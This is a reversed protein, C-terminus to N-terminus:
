SPRGLRGLVIAVHLTFADRPDRPDRGTVTHVRSLRYRLTNVHVPLSRATAELSGGAALLTEVTALLGSGAGALADYCEEVLQARALPDGALAREPLLAEAAVIGPHRPAARLVGLGAAAARASAAAVGLTTAPPGLVAGRAGALLGDLTTPDATAPLVVFVAEGQAAALVPLGLRRAARLVEDVAADLDAGAPTVALVQVAVGGPWGLASARALVVREDDGALLAEAVQAQLRADWAGRQEAARAYVRAVSFAVERGYREVAGRLAPESATSALEPVAEEVVDVVVRVLEVTQELSVSRTVSRPVSAFANDPSAPASAADRLWRAFAEVGGQVVVGVWARVDADLAAWWPLAELRAVSRRVLLDTAGSVSSAFAATRGAQEATRRPQAGAM